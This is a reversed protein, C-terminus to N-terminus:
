VVIGQRGYVVGAKELDLGEVNPRRGAAVLLHSGQVQAEEGGREFAVTLAGSAAEVRKVAVGEHMAIGDAQLRQRLSGVLEPDDKPLIHAAELVTVESGLLRHAQAMEPGIPGGGIVILHRPLVAQVGFRGADRVATAAKAAALLAKSPVCGYNLCDGGM